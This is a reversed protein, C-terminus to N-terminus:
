HIRQIQYSPNYDTFQQSFVQQKARGRWDRRLPGASRAKLRWVASLKLSGSASLLFGGNRDIIVALSRRSIERNQRRSM